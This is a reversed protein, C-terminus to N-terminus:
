VRGSAFTRVNEAINDRLSKDGAPVPATPTASPVSTVKRRAREAAAKAQAAPDAPAASPTAPQLEDHMRVATAYASPYDQARGAELLLAMDDKVAEYHPHLPNGQADKAEVFSRLTQRIERAEFKQDLLADINQPQQTPAPQQQQPARAAAADVLTWQGDQGQQALRVPLQYDRILDNIIAQKQQPPAYTLAYQVDLLKKVAQAEDMGNQKMVERYPAVVSDLPKLRDFEAKYTSVGKAYDSERRAVENLVEPPLKDWHPKLEPKWTSPFAHAPAAVAPAAAPATAATPTATAQTAPKPAPAPGSAFTGDANRSRTDPAPEAATPAAVGEKSPTTPGLPEATATDPEKSFTEVNAAITDRLSPEAQTTLGIEDPM